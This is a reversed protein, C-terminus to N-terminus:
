VVCMCFYLSESCVWICGLVVYTLAPDADTFVLTRGPCVLRPHGRTCKVGECFYISPCETEDSISAKPQVYGIPPKSHRVKTIGYKANNKAYIKIYQAMKYVVDEVADANNTTREDDNHVDADTNAGADSDAEGEANNKTRDDDNHVDDDDDQTATNSGADSDAEGENKEVVPLEMGWLDADSSCGFADDQKDEAM